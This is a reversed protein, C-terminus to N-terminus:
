GHHRELRDVAIDDLQAHIDPHERAVLLDIAAQIYEIHGIIRTSNVGQGAKLLSLGWVIALAATKSVSMGLSEALAGVEEAVGANLHVSVNKYKM